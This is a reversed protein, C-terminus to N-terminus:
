LHDFGFNELANKVADIAQQQNKKDSMKIFKILLSALEDDTGFKLVQGDTIFYFRFSKYKIEKIVIEAVHALAKGKLPHAELEKM